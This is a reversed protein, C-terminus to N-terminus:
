ARCADLVDALAPAFLQEEATTLDAGSERLVAEAVAKQLAVALLSWWRAMYARETTRRLVEAVGRAKKTVLQTLLQQSLPSWRGHTEVGLSLLRAHPSAEVDPCDDERNKREADAVAAGNRDAAKPKPRGDGGVPSVCTADM